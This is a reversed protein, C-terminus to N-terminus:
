EAAYPLLAIQRARKIAKALMRQHAACNGTIRSPMIKGRETTFKQLRGVDKYSVDAIKESCFKCIKKRFMMASRKRMLPKKRTRELVM